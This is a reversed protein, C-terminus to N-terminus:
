ASVGGGISVRGQVGRDLTHVQKDFVQRVLHVVVLKPLLKQQEAADGGGFHHPILLPAATPEPENAECRRLLCCLRDCLAITLFRQVLWGVLWGFLRGVMIVM